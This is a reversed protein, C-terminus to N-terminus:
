AAFTDALSSLVASVNGLAAPAAKEARLLRAYSALESLRENFILRATATSTPIMAGRTLRFGPGANM